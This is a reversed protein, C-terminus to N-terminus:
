PVTEFKGRLFQRVGTASVPTVTRFTRYTWGTELAPLDAALAPSVEEIDANWVSLGTDGQIRYRIGSGTGSLETAGNFTVGVRVPLTLTLYRQGAITAVAARMTGSDAGSKPNSNTAFEALNSVGDRDPDAGAAADAGALGNSATWADYPPVSGAASYNLYLDNGTRSVSWSGNGASFGGADVAFAAADFGTIGGAASALLFSKNAASFNTLGSQSVRVVIPAAPTGALNLAGSANLYDSGTGAAGTWNSVEWAIVSNGALTTAATFLTGISDGPSIAGGANVTTAGGIMGIGTLNGGANVNVPGTGTASGAFNSVRLSGGNVSTGGTHTSEAQLELTGAGTKVLAGAASGFDGSQDRLVTSVLLDTGAGAVTDSVAFTTDPGLHNAKGSSSITSVTTGTASVTGRFQFGEYGGADTAAQTLSAGNNLIVNGLVNYRTSNLTAGNLVTAPLNANNVGNGYVNNTTFNLLGPTNVTVTRGAATASGLSTVTAGGAILIGDDVTFNGATTSAGALTLTGAGKKLVSVSGTFLGAYTTTTATDSAVTFLAPLSSTIAKGTTNAGAAPPNSSLGPVTQDFGNLNLTAANADIQGLTLPAGTALADNSGLTITGVALLSTAWTNGTSNIFWNNADTKAMTGTPLNVKGNVTGTGGAGRLFWTGTFGAPDENVPGNLTMSGSALSFQIISSGALKVPGNVISDGTSTLQTRLTTTGNLQSTFGLTLGAPTTTNGLDLTTANGTAGSAPYNVTISGGGPVASQAGFRLVTLGGAGSAPADVTIDGTYGSNDGSLVFSGAGAANSHFSVADGGTLRGPITLTAATANNHSLSGGGPGTIIDRLGFDVATAATYSLRAGGQLLIDNDKGGNGLSAANSFALIGGKLETRGSYSNTGALTLTGTGDKTLYGGGGIGTGASTLTYNKTSNVLTFAPTVGASVPVATQTAADTFTVSDGLFFQDAGPTANNWNTTTKIDWASSGTGNWTLAKTGGLTVTIASGTDTVTISRYNSAGAAAFTGAGTKSTYKIATYTGDALSATSFDLLVTGTVDLSAATLAGATAPDFFVQGGNLTLSPTTFEGGLSAGAAVSVSAPVMTAPLDLRGTTVTVAGTYGASAGTLTTTGAGTKELPNAGSFGPQILQVGAGGLIIKGGGTLALSGSGLMTRPLTFANAAGNTDLTAGTGPVKIDADLPITLAAGTGTGTGTNDAKITGGALNMEASVNRQVVGWRSRLSLVGGNLNYQDVGSPMNAAPGNNGRNDLVVWNTTVNGADHNFIGTGDIGLYIGGGVIAPTALANINNDGTANAGGAAATSPTLAPSDGTLTLAGGKMNYVSTETGWHGLRVQGKVSVTSGALQNLVGSCNAAEGVSLHNASIVSGAKLNLVGGTQGSSVRIYEATVAGDTNLIGGARGQAVRIQGGQSQDPAGLTIANGAQNLGAGRTDVDIFVRTPQTGDGTLTQGAGLTYGDTRDFGLVGNAGDGNITVPGTGLTGTTGNAGINLRMSPVGATQTNQGGIVTPGYSNAGSFIVTYSNNYNSANVTLDGGSIPGSVTGTVNHAGITAAGNIVVPGAWVTGAELRLAGLNGGADVFGSGTINVPNAYTQNAAALIQAGDQIEIPGTGLAAASPGQLRWTGSLPSLLRIPGSFGSSNGTLFMSHSTSGGAVSHANITLSGTGSLNRSFTFPGDDRSLILGTGAALSVGSTGSLVTNGPTDHDLEVTGGTITTAGLHSNNTNLTVKGTNNKVLSAGGTIGYSGTVTYEAASTNDFTVLSPNVAADQIDVTTNVAGAPFIVDDGEIYDTNATGAGSPMKWNGTATTTWLSSNTGNWTIRKNDTVQLAIASGTDILSSTSHGVPRLSFGGLGPSTGTYNLIPYTGAALMGGIQNAIVTTAGSTTIRGGGGADGATGVDALLTAGNQFNLSGISFTGPLGTRGIALNGSEVTLSGTGASGNLALTGTGQKVFGGAGELAANNIVLDDPAPNDDVVLHTVSAGSNLKGGAAANIQHAVAGAAQGFTTLDGDLTLTRAGLNVTGTFTSTNGLTLSALRQDFGNLDLTANGSGGLQVKATTSIGDAAGVLATDTVLLSNYGTGGGGYRIFGARHSVVLSPDSASVPGNLVLANTAANGGVFHGGASPSGDLQISGSLTALGTGAYHLAGFGAVGKLAGTVAISSANSVGGSIVLRSTSASPELTIANANAATNASSNNNFQVIVGEIALGGTFTNAAGLILTSDVGSDNSVRIGDNGALVAGITATRNLVQIGAMGSAVDLTLISGATGTNLVQDNSVTGTDGFRLVGVTRAGDVTVTRTANIDIASFDATAGAGTAVTGGTWNTTVPWSGGAVPLWSGNTQAAAKEPASLAVLAALPLMSLKLPLPHFKM